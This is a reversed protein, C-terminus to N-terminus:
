LQRVESCILQLFNLSLLCSNYSPVPPSINMNVLGAGTDLRTLLDTWDLTTYHLRIQHIKDGDCDPLEKIKLRIVSTPQRTLRTALVTWLPSSLWHIVMEYLFMPM